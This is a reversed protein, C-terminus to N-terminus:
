LRVKFLQTAVFVNFTFDSNESLDQVIGTITVTVKDSMFIQKGITQAASLEPFYLKAKSETLVTQCPKNLSIKASGVVWKYNALNFYDRDAFVINRAKKFIEPKAM